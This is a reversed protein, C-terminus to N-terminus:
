AKQEMLWAELMKALGAPDGAISREIERRLRKQQEDPELDEERLEPLAEVTANRPRSRKFLGRLFLV